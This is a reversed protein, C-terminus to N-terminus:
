DVVFGHTNLIHRVREAEKECGIRIHADYTKGANIEDLAKLFKELVEPNERDVVEPYISSFNGCDIHTYKSNDGSFYGSPQSIQTPTTLGLKRDGLMAYGLNAGKKRLEHVRKNIEYHFETSAAITIFMGLAVSIMPDSKIVMSALIVLPFILVDFLSVLVPATLVDELTQPPARENFLHLFTFAIGVAIATITFMAINLLPHAPNSSSLVAYIVAFIIGKGTQELWPAINLATRDRLDKESLGEEDYWWRGFELTWPLMGPALEDKPEQADDDKKLLAPVKVTFEVFNGDKDTREMALGHRIFYRRCFIVPFGADEAGIKVAELRMIKKKASQCYRVAEDLLQTMVYANKYEPLIVPQDLYVCGKEAKIACHGVQEEGRRVVLLDGAADLLSVVDIAAMEESLDPPKIINMKLLPFIKLNFAEGLLRQLDYVYTLNEAAYGMGGMEEFWIELFSLENKLMVFKDRSDDPAIGAREIKDAEAIFEAIELELERLHYLDERMIEFPYLVKNPRVKGRYVRKEKERDSREAADFAKRRIDAFRAAEKADERGQEALKSMAARSGQPDLLLGKVIQMQRRVDDIPISLEESIDKNKPLIGESQLGRLVFRAIKFAASYTISRGMGPPPLGDLVLSAEVINNKAIKQGFLVMYSSQDGHCLRSLGRAGGPVADFIAASIENRPWQIGLRGAIRNLDASELRTGEPAHRVLITLLDRKDKRNKRSQSMIRAATESEEPTLPEIRAEGSGGSVKRQRAFNVSYNLLSFFPLRGFIGAPGGMGRFPAWGMGNFARGIGGGTKPRLQGAVKKLEVLVEEIDNSSELRRRTERYGRLDFRELMRGVIELLARIDRNFRDEGQKSFENWYGELGLEKLRELGFDKDDRIIAVGFDIITVKRDATNIFIDAPKLDGHAVGCRHLEALADGLRLIYEAAESGTILGARAKDIISSFDQGKVDETVLCPIEEASYDDFYWELMYRERSWDREIETFGVFAPLAKRMREFAPDSFFREYLRGEREVAAISELTDGITVPIKIYWDTNRDPIEPSAILVTSLAGMSCLSFEKCPALLSPGGEREVFDPLGSDAEVPDQYEDADDEDWEDRRETPASAEAAMRRVEEDPHRAARELFEAYGSGAPYAEVVIRTVLRAQKSPAKPKVFAFLDRLKNKGALDVLIQFATNFFNDERPYQALPVIISHTNDIGLLALYKVAALKYYPIFELSTGTNIRSLKLLVETLPRAEDIPVARIQAWLIYVLSLRFQPYHEFYESMRDLFERDSLIAKHELMTDDIKRRVDAESDDKKIGYALAAFKAFNHGYDHWCQISLRIKTRANDITGDKIGPVRAVYRIGAFNREKEFLVREALSPRLAEALAQRQPRNFGLIQLLKDNGAPDNVAELIVKDIDDQSAGPELGLGAILSSVSTKDKTFADDENFAAGVGRNNKGETAAPPEEKHFYGLDEMELLEEIDQSRWSWNEFNQTGPSNIRAERPSRLLAQLTFSYFPMQSIARMVKKEVDEPTDSDAITESHSALFHKVGNMDISKNENKMEEWRFAFRCPQDHGGDFTLLHKKDQRKDELWGIMHFLYFNPLRECADDMMEIISRDRGGIDEGILLTGTRAAIKALHRLNRRGFKLAEENNNPVWEGETPPVKDSKDVNWEQLLGLVHDIRIGDYLQAMHRIRKEFYKLIEKRKHAWDYPWFMWKQGLESIGPEPPAGARKSEIFLDQHTWVDASNPEPYLPLDGIMRKEKESAHARVGKWRKDYLWQMYKYFAIEEKYTERAEDLAGKDRDKYREDWDWWALDFKAFLAHFLSYDEIWDRNQWVYSNFETNEGADMKPYRDKFVQWWCHKKFAYIFPYDIKRSRLAELIKQRKAEDGAAFSDIYEGLKAKDLYEDLPLHMIASQAFTSISGYPTSLGPIGGPNIQTTPLLFIMDAGQKDAFDIFMDLWKLDGIGQDDKRKGSFLPCLIGGHRKENWWYAAKQIGLKKVAWKPFIFNDSFVTHVSAYAATVALFSPDAGAFYLIPLAIFTLAASAYPGINVIEQGKFSPLVQLSSGEFRPLRPRKGTKIWTALYDALEHTSVPIAFPLFVAFLYGAMGYLGILSNTGTIEGALWAVFSAALVLLSYRMLSASLEPQAPHSGADRVLKLIRVVLQRDAETRALETALECYFVLDESAVSKASIRQAMEELLRKNLGRIDKADRLLSQLARSAEPDDEPTKKKISGLIGDIDKKYKDFFVASFPSDPGFLMWQAAHFTPTDNSRNWELVADVFSRDKWRKRHSEILERPWVWSDRRVERLLKAELALLSKLLGGSCTNAAARVVEIARDTFRPRLGAIEDARALFGEMTDFAALDGTKLSEGIRGLEKMRLKMFGSIAEEGIHTKLDPIAEIESLFDKLDGVAQADEEELRKNIAASRMKYYGLFASSFASGPDYLIWHGGARMPGETRNWVLVADHFALLAIDSRWDIGHGEDSRGAWSGKHRDVFKGAWSDSNEQYLLGAEVYLINRMRAEDAQGVPAKLAEDAYTWVRDRFGPFIAADDLLEKLASGAAPSDPDAQDIVAKFEERLVHDFEEKLGGKEGTNEIITNTLIWRVGEKMNDPGYQMMLRLASKISRFIVRFEADTKRDFKDRCEDCFRKAWAMYNGDGYLEERAHRYIENNNALAQPASLHDGEVFYIRAEWPLFHGTTRKMDPMDVLYRTVEIERAAPFRNAVVIAKQGQYSRIYSVADSRCPGLIDMDVGDSFVPNSRQRIIDSIDDDKSPLDIMFYGPLCAVTALDCLYKESNGGYHTSVMDEGPSSLYNTFIGLSLYKQSDTLWNQMGQANDQKSFSDCAHKWLEQQDYFGDIGARRHIDIQGGFLDEYKVIVRARPFEEKFETLIDLPFNRPTDIQFYTVGAEAWERMTDSLRKRPEPLGLDCGKILENLDIAVELNRGSLSRIKERIDGKQRAGALYVVSGEPLRGDEIIGPSGASVRIINPRHDEASRMLHITQGGHHIRVPLGNETLYKKDLTRHCEKRIIDFVLYRGSFGSNTDADPLFQFSEPLIRGVHTDGLLLLYVQGEVTLAFADMAEQSEAKLKVLQQTTLANGNIRKWTTGAAIWANKSAVDKLTVATKKGSIEYVHEGHDHNAYEKLFIKSALDPTIMNTLKRAQILSIQEFKDQTLAENVKAGSSEDLLGNEDGFSPAYPMLSFAERMFQSRRSSDDVTMAASMLQAIIWEEKLPVRVAFARIAELMVGLDEPKCDLVARLVSRDEGVLRSDEIPGLFEKQSIIWAAGRRVSRQNSFLLRELAQRFEPSGLQGSHDRYFNGAWDVGEGGESKERSRKVAEDVLRRVEEGRKKSRATNHFSFSRFGYAPLEIVLTRPFQRYKSNKSFPGTRFEGEIPSIERDAGFIRDLCVTIETPVDSDNIVTLVDESSSRRVMAVIGSNEMSDVYAPKVIAHIGSNEKLAIATDEQLKRVCEANVWHRQTRNFSPRSFFRCLGAIEMDLHDFNYRPIYVASDRWNKHAPHDRDAPWLEDPRKEPLLETLPVLFPGNHMACLGIAADVREKSGLAELGTAEDHNTIMTTRNKQEEDPVGFLYARVNQARGRSLVEVAYDKYYATANIGQRYGIDTFFKMNGDKGPSDHV